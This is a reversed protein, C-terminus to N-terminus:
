IFGNATVSPTAAVGCKSAYPFRVSEEMVAGGHWWERWEKRNGQCIQMVRNVFPIRRKIIM